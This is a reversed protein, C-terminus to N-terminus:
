LAGEPNAFYAFWAWQTYPTRLRSIEAAAIQCTHCIRSTIPKKKVQTDVTGSPWTPRPTGIPPAGASPPAPPGWCAAPPWTSPRSTTAGASPTSSRGRPRVQVVCFKRGGNSAAKSSTFALNIFQSQMEASECRSRVRSYHTSAASGLNRNYIIFM